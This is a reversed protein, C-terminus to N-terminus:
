QLDLKNLTGAVITLSTLEKLDGLRDLKVQQDNISISLFQLRELAAIWDIGSQQIGDIPFLVNTAAM